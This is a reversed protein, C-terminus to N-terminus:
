RCIRSTAVSTHTYRSASGPPLCPHTHIYRGASGPPLWPHIRIDVPLDLLYCRIYQCSGSTAVSTRTYRSASGPPLSPHTRIDVRLQVLYCLASLSTHHTPSVWRSRVWRAERDTNWPEAARVARREAPALQLFGQPPLDGAGVGGVFPKAALTQQSQPLLVLLQPIHSPAPLRKQFVMGYLTPHPCHGQHNRRGSVTVSLEGRTFEWPRPPLTATTTHPWGATPWTDGQVFQM